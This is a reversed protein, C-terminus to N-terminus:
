MEMATMALPPNKIEWSITNMRPLIAKAMYISPRIVYLNETETMSMKRATPLIEMATM